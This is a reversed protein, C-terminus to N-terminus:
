EINEIISIVQKQSLGQKSYISFSQNNHKWSALHIKDDNGKITIDNNDIQIQKVNEYNTFDGSIDETGESTRYNIKESATEYDISLITDNILVINSLTYEEPMKAPVMADYGLEEIATAVDNYEIYPNAIKTPQDIHEIIKPVSISISLVLAFCAAVLGSAIKWNFFRKSVKAKKSKIKELELKHIKQLEDKSLEVSYIEMEDLYELLNDNSNTDNDKM